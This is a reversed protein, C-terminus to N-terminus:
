QKCSEAATQFPRMPRVGLRGRFTALDSALLVTVLIAAPAERDFATREACGLTM